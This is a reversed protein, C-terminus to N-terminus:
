RKKIESVDVGLAKGIEIFTKSADLPLQVKAVGGNELKISVDAKSEGIFQVSVGSIDKIPIAKDMTYIVGKEVKIHAEELVNSSYTYAGFGIVAVAGLVLAMAVAKKVLSIVIFIALVAIVIYVLREDVLALAM